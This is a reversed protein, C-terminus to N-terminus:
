AVAKKVAAPVAAPRKLLDRVVNRNMKAVTQEPVGLAVLRKAQIKQRQRKAKGTKIPRTDNNNRIHKKM